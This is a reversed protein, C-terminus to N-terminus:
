QSNISGICVSLNQMISESVMAILLAVADFIVSLSTFFM